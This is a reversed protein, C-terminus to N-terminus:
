MTFLSSGVQLICSTGWLIGRALAPRQSISLAPPQYPPVASATWDILVRWADASLTGGWGTTCEGRDDCHHTIHLLPIHM